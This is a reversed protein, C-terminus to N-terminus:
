NGRRQPFTDSGNPSRSARYRCQCTWGGGGGGARKEIKSLYLSPSLSFPAPKYKSSAILKLFLPACKCLHFKFRERRTAQQIKKKKKINQTKLSPFFFFLTSRVKQLSNQPLLLPLLPFHLPLSISRM